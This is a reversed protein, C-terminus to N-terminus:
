ALIKKPALLSAPGAEGPELDASRLVAGLRALVVALDEEKRVFGDAGADLAQLETEPGESATMLLCPTRRLAADLRIRRVVSAGPPGAPAARGPYGGGRESPGRPGTRLGPPGKAM